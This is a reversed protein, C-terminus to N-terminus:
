SHSKHDCQDRCYKVRYTQKLSKGEEETEVVILKCLMVDLRLSDLARVQGEDGAAVNLDSSKGGNGRGGTGM